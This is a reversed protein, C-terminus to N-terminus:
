PIQLLREGVSALAVCRWTTVVQTMLFLRQDVSADCVDSLDPLSRIGLGLCHPKKM